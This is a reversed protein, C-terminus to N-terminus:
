EVEITQVLSFGHSPPAKNETVYWSGTQKYKYLYLRVKEKRKTWSTNTLTTISGYLTEIIPIDESTFGVITGCNESPCYKAELVEGVNYKNDGYVRSEKQM